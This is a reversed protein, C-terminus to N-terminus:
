LWVWMIMPVAICVIVIDLPLGMRWYDSFRYGGPGMVLTNSQHGIPTLYPSAAGIAVAMLLADTSVGLTQALSAAVPAMLVATPTNHVLDSLIMSTIILLAIVAYVPVSAAIDALSLAILDTTGTSQLAEGIPILCGLLVIVPWEVSRYAQDLPIAKFLILSVAATAFAIQVPVFELAAAIVSAAFVGLTLTANKQQKMSVGRNALPLLRMNQMIQALRDREGQLLLVDGVRFRISSLRTMLPSDKRSVALLNVGFRTHLHVARMSQGEIMAGPMVVVEVIRVESSDIQHDQGGGVGVRVLGPNDFLPQLSTSDGELILVDDQRITASTRPALFRQNGRIISLVTLEDECLAELEGISAGILPSDKEVSAETVYDTIKFQRYHRSEDNDRQPILRWGILVIFLIGGLAVTLGVPTFDFMGFPEGNTTARFTAIVINPPTGILTVLGGLLSAFSLPMLLTHPSRKARRADRVTVPLMLALAGVNNMFASLLATIATNASIQMVFTRRTRALLRLFFEIVGTLQIAQSIVLVCAVTIVAPHSFGRFAEEAPVVGAFVAALLAVGAVVDYRWHNWMFFCMTVVLIAVVLLQETSM